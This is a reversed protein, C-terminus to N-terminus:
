GNRPSGHTGGQTRSVPAQDTLRVKGSSEVCRFPITRSGSMAVGVDKPREGSRPRTPILGHYTHSLARDPEVEGGPLPGRLRGCTQCLGAAVAWGRPAIPMSLSDRDPITLQEGGRCHRRCHDPPHHGVNPQPRAHYPTTSGPSQRPVPSWPHLRRHCGRIGGRTTSPHHVVDRLPRDAWSEIGITIRTATHSHASGRDPPEFVM